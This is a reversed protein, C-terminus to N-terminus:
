KEELAACIACTGGPLAVGRHHSELAERLRAIEKRYYPGLPGDHGCWDAPLAALITDLRNRCGGCGAAIYTDGHVFCASSANLAEALPAARKPDTM